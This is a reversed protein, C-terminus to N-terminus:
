VYRPPKRAFYNRRWDKDSQWILAVWIFVPGRILPTIFPSISARAAEAILRM